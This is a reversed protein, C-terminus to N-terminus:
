RSEIRKVEQSEGDPHRGGDYARRGVSPYEHELIRKPNRRRHRLQRGIDPIFRVDSRGSKASATYFRQEM